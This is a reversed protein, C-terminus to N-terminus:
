KIILEQPVMRWNLMYMRAELYAPDGKPRNPDIPDEPDIVPTGIGMIGTLTVQYWHNRIVAFVYDNKEKDGKLGTFGQHRITAYFYCMGDKWYKIVYTNYHAVVGNVAAKEADSWSELAEDKVVVKARWAQDRMKTTETKTSFPELTINDAAITKPTAPATVLKGLAKDIDSKVIGVFDAYLYKHDSYEVIEVGKADTKPKGNELDSKNYLQAAVLVKTAHSKDDPALITSYDCNNPNVYYTMSTNSAPIDSVKNWEVYNHNEKTPSQPILAWYSRHNAPDNWQFAAWPATTTSTGYGFENLGNIMKLLHARTANCSLSIGKIVPQIDIEKGNPQSKDYVTLKGSEKDPDAKYASFSIENKVEIKALVREVYIDVPSIKADEKINGNEDYQIKNGSSDKHYINGAVIPYSKVLPTADTPKTEAKDTKYYVANSMTFVQEEGKKNASYNKFFSENADAYLADITTVDNVSGTGGEASNTNNYPNLVCVVSSYDVGDKLAVEVTGVKSINENTNDDAFTSSNITPTQSDVKNGDKDFFLLIMSSVNSEGSGPSFEGARTNDESGNTSLIQISIYSEGSTINPEPEKVQEDSSCATLAMIGCFLSLHKLKM